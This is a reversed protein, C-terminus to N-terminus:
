SNILEIYLVSKLYSYHSHMYQDFLRAFLSRLYINRWHYLFSLFHCFSVLTPINVQTVAWGPIYSKANICHYWYFLCLNQHLFSSRSNSGMNGSSSTFVSFKCCMLIVYDTTSLDLNEYIYLICCLTNDDILIMFFNGWKSIESLEGYSTQLVAEM